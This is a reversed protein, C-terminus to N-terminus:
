VLDPSAINRVHHYVKRSYRHGVTVCREDQSTRMGPVNQRRSDNATAEEMGARDEVPMDALAVIVWTWGCVQYRKSVATLQRGGKDPHHSGCQQLM